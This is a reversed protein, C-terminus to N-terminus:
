ARTSVDMFFEKVRRINQSLCLRSLFYRSLFYSPYLKAIQLLSEAAGRRDSRDMQHAVKTLLWRCQVDKANRILRRGRAGYRSKVLGIFMETGPGYKDAMDFNQSTRYGTLKDAVYLFEGLERLLVLVWCDEWGVGRFAECFGGVADFSSRRLVWTSTMLGESLSAAPFPCETMVEEFKPSERISSTRYERGEDDIFGFESFALSARPNQELARIMTSLKGPMWLDDSDLFALYEGTSFAVGANRASAVGRNAQTIVHVRGDYESLTAATSDTSGDNVVIIEQNEYDQRLASEIAERITRAANYASIITSVKPCM